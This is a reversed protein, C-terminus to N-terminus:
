NSAKLLLLLVFFLLLVLIYIIAMNKPITGNDFTKPSPHVNGQLINKFTCHCTVSYIFFRIPGYLTSYM